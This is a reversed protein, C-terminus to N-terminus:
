KYCQRRSLNLSGLQAMDMEIVLVTLQDSIESGSTVLLLVRLQTM